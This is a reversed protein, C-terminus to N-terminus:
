IDSGPTSASGTGTLPAIPALFSSKSVELDLKPLGEGALSGNPHVVCAEVGPVLIGVSDPKNKARRQTHWSCTEHHGSNDVEPSSILPHLIYPLGSIFESFGYGARVDQLKPTFAAVDHAMLTETAQSEEDDELEGKDESLEITRTDDETGSFDLDSDSSSVSSHQSQSTLSDEPLLINESQVNLISRPQGIIRRHTRPVAIDENTVLYESQLLTIKTLKGLVEPTICKMRSNNMLLITGTTGKKVQWTGKIVHSNVDMNIHKVNGQVSSNGTLEDTRGHSGVQIESPPDWNTYKEASMRDCNAPSSQRTM